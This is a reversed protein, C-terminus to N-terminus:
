ALGSQRLWQQTERVVTELHPLDPMQGGLRPQWLRKLTDQRRTLVDSLATQDLGKHIMKEGVRFLVAETDVLQRTLLYHIM